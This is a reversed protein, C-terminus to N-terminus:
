TIKVIESVKLNFYSVAESLNSFKPLALTEEINWRAPIKYQVHKFHFLVHLNQPIIYSLYWIM